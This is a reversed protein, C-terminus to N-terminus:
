CGSVWVTAHDFEIHIRMTVQTKFTVITMPNFYSGHLMYYPVQVHKTHYCGNEIYAFICCLLTERGVTIDCLTLVLPVSSISSLTLIRWLHRFTSLQTDCGQPARSIVIDYATGFDVYDVLWTSRQSPLLVQYSMSFLCFCWM